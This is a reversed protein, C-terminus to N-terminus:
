GAPLTFYFTSGQDKKSEVRIKGGQKEVLDKCLMLGLGTGSEKATGKTTHSIDARFLKDVDKEDMGVGTDIVKITVYGANSEALVSVTGGPKTFKIANSILNRLITQTMRVDAFVFLGPAIDIEL